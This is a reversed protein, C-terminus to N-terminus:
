AVGCNKVLIDDMAAVRPTPEEGSVLLDSVLPYFDLKAAIEDVSKSICAATKDVPMVKRILAVQEETWKGKLGSQHASWPTFLKATTVDDKNKLAVALACTIWVVVFLLLVSLSVNAITQWM